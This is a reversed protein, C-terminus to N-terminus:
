YLEIQGDTLITVWMNTPIQVQVLWELVEIVPNGCSQQWHSVSLTTCHACLSNKTVIESVWGGVIM